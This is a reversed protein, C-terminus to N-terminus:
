EMAMSVAPVHSSMAISSTWSIPLRVVTMVWSVLSVTKRNWRRDMASCRPIRDGEELCHVGFLFDNCGNNLMKSLKWARPKTSTPLFIVLQLRAAAVIHGAGRRWRPRRLAERPRASPLRAATEWPWCAGVGVAAAAQRSLVATLLAAQHGEGKVKQGQFHHGLWM